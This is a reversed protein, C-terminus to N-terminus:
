EYYLKVLVFGTRIMGTGGQVRRDVSIRYKAAELSVYGFNTVSSFRLDFSGVFPIGSVNGITELIPGKPDRPEVSLRTQFGGNASVSGSFQIELVADRELTFFVSLPEIPKWKSDPLLLLSDQVNRVIISDPVFGGAPLPPGTWNGGRDIVGLGGVVLSDLTLRSVALNGSTDLLAKGSSLTVSSPSIPRGSVDDAQAARFAYAVSLIRQRPLLESDEDVALSLYREGESFLDEQIPTISGLLVNFQGLSVKVTQSESWLPSGGTEVGYISFHIQISEDLLSDATTQLLGQYNILRPVDSQASHPFLFLSIFHLLTLTLYINCRPM